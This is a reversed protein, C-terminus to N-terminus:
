CFVGRDLQHRLEIHLGAFRDPQELHVKQPQGRQRDHALRALQDLLIVTYAVRHLVDRVPRVRVVRDLRAHNLLHEVQNSSALRDADKLHFAGPHALHQRLHAGLGKLVDNRGDGEVAGPRHLVDRHVVPPQMPFLRDFVLM